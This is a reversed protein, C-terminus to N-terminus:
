THIYRAISRDGGGRVGAVDVSNIVYRNGEEGLIWYRRGRCRVVSNIVKGAEM